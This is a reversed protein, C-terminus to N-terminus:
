LKRRQLNWGYTELIRRKVNLIKKKLYNEM